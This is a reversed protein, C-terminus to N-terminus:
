GSAPSPEREDRPALHREISERGAQLADQAVAKADDILDGRKLDDVVDGVPKDASLGHSGASEKVADLTESAVRSGRDVVDQALDRGKERIKTAAAELATKEQELSPILAGAVAGVIAAVAGLAFPNSALSSLTERTSHAMTQTDQNFTPAAPVHSDPFSPAMGLTPSAGDRSGGRNHESRDSANSAILWAMGVGVLALPMPNARARAFLDQTVDAGDGGRFYAFADNLMQKPSLHDRLQDLRDDMRARTQAIGAEIQDTEALYDDMM